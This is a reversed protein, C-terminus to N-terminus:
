YVGIVGKEDFNFFDTKFFFSTRNATVLFTNFIDRQNNNRMFVFVTKSDFVNKSTTVTSLKDYKKLKEINDIYVQGPLTKQSYRDHTLNSSILIMQLFHKTM